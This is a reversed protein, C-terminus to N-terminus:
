QGASMGLSMRETNMEGSGLIRESYASESAFDFINPQAIIEPSRLQM